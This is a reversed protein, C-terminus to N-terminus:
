KGQRPVTAIAVTSDHQRLPCGLQGRCDQCRDDPSKDEGGACVGPRPGRLARHQAAEHEAVVRICAALMASDVDREAVRTDDARRGRAVDREGSLDRRVPQGHRDEGAVAVLRRERVQARQQHLAAGANGLAIGDGLGARGADGLVVDGVHMEANPDAAVRVDIRQREQRRPSGGRRRHGRRRGLRSRSWRRRRGRLRRGSRRRRRCRIGSGRRRLLGRSLSRDRSRGSFRGRKGRRGRRSRNGLLGGRVALGGSRRLWSGGEARSAARRPGVPRRSVERAHTRRLDTRGMHESLWAAPAGRHTM